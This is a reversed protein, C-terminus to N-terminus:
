TISSTLMAKESKTIEFANYFVSINSFRPSVVNINEEQLETNDSAYVPVSLVM